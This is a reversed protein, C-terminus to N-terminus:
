ELKLDVYFRRASVASPTELEITFVQSDGAALDIFPIKNSLLAGQARTIYGSFTGDNTPCTVKIGGSGALGLARKSGWTLLDQYDTQPPFDAPNDVDGVDTAPVLYFGLEDILSDGFNTVRVQTVVGSTVTLPDYITEGTSVIEFTLDQVSM